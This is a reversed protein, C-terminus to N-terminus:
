IFTIDKFFFLPLEDGVLSRKSPSKKGLIILDQVMKKTEEQTFRRESEIIQKKIPTKIPKEIQYNTLNDLEENYEGNIKKNM